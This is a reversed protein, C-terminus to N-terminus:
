LWILPHRIPLNRIVEEVKPQHDLKKWTEFWQKENFANAGFFLFPHAVPWDNWYMVDPKFTWKSKDATFPYLFAIGKKISKGDATEYNWLNNSPTSLIQCMMVFADLNFLSYGYPKTRATELPFSGDAGMQNPLLVTQYRIRLSDLMPQDKCLKAFSAVQMAWCTSHNNKTNKEDLGMKSTNLWTIYKSFWQKIEVATQKDFGAANEMVLM